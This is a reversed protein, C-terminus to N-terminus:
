TLEIIDNYLFHIKDVVKSTHFHGCFLKKYEVRDKIGDLWIEQSHDVTSQDIGSLFVETPEYSFPCTHSLIYDVKKVRKITEEVKIKDEESIQEDPFWHMGKRLRYFKDVSYAGDITLFTKDNITYVEGNKAFIIRPFSKQQYVIGGFMEVEEYTSINSARYDHNGNLCFFTLKNHTLLDRKNTTDYKNLFFNVGVDGLIIMVDDKKPKFERCFEHIPHFNAHKDGTIFLRM